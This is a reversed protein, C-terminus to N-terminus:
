LRNVALHSGGCPEASSSRAPGCEPPAAAASKLMVDCLRQRAPRDASRFVPASFRPWGHNPCAPGSESVTGIEGLKGRLAPHGRQARSWRKIIRIKPLASKLEATSEDTVQTGELNVEELLPLTKLLRVDTVRTWGLDLYRLNSLALLQSLGADSVENFGLGLRELRSMGRLHKLGADTIGTGSLQLLRMEILGKLHAIGADTIQRDSLILERLQKLPRLHVLGADSVEPGRLHLEQLGTLKELHVFQSAALNPGLSLSQFKPIDKLYVLGSGTVATNWLSLERLGRLGRLCALDSDTFQADPDISQAFSFDVRDVEDFDEVREDGVLKRAWEPSSHVRSISGRLRQIERIAIQERYIPAVAALGVAIVLLTAVVLGIWLSQLMRLSPRVSEPVNGATTM